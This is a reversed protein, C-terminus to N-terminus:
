EKGFLPELLEEVECDFPFEQGVDLFMEDDSRVDFMLLWQEESLHKVVDGRAFRIPVAEGGGGATVYRIDKGPTFAGKFSRVVTGRKHITHKGPLPARELREDELSVVVVNSYGTVISLNDKILTAIGTRSSGPKASQRCAVSVV